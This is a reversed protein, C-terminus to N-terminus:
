PAGIQAKLAAVDATLQEVLALLSSTVNASPSAAVWQASNGDDYYVFLVGLASSWWLAGPQPPPSSPPNDSIAAGGGIGAWGAGNYGEFQGTSTNFRLSGTAPSGPRQGTLGTPILAAGTAGTQSVKLADQNDVYSKDAKAAISTALAADQTDVYTKDAKGANSASLSTIQSQLGSDQSDVYSKDAKAAIASTNAGIASALAADQSDVYSKRGYPNASTADVVDADTMVVDGIRGNWRAVGTSGSQGSWQWATGTWVRMENLTTNFYVAGVQLPDGDNDTTPDAPHAGLFIDTFDDLADIAAQAADDAADTGHQFDIQLVWYGALLDAEFDDSSLHEVVARYIKSSEPAPAYVMEGHSYQHNPIWDHPQQIGVVVEASLQDWGVSANALSGDDRQILGLNTITQNLSLAIANYENEHEQAPLPKTPNLTQFSVFDYRRVYVPPQAM